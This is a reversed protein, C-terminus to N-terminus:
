RFGNECKERGLDPFTVGFWCANLENINTLLGDVMLGALLAATVVVPWPSLHRWASLRVASALLVVLGTGIPILTTLVAFVLRLPFPLWHLFAV